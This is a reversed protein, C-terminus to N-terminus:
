FLFLSGVFITGVIDLCNHAYQTDFLLFCFWPESFRHMFIPFGFENNFIFNRNHKQVKKYFLWIFIVKLISSFRYNITHNNSQSLLLCIFFVYVCECM